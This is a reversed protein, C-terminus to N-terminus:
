GVLMNHEDAKIASANNKRLRPIWWHNTRVVAHCRLNWVRTVHVVRSLENAVDNEALMGTHPHVGHETSVHVGDAHAM